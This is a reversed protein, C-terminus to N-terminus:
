GQFHDNDLHLEQMLRFEGFKQRRLSNHVLVRKAAAHRWRRLLLLALAKQQHSSLYM